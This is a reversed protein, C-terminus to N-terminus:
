SIDGQNRLETFAARGLAENVQQTVVAGLASGVAAASGGLSAGNVNVTVNVSGSGGAGGFLMSAMRTTNAATEREAVLMSTLIANADYAFSGGSSSPSASDAISAKEEQAAASQQSLSDSLQQEFVGKRLKMLDVGLAYTAETIQKNILKQDLEEKFMVQKFDFEMRAADTSRGQLQLTEVMMSNFDIQNSKALM